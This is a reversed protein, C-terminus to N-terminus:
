SKLEQLPQGFYINQIASMVNATSWGFIIIGTAAELSALIRWEEGLTIDGYGLTTYTVISFYLSEEFTEIAGAMTFYGAWIMAEVIAAVIMMVVIADLFILKQFKKHSPQTKAKHIIAISGKTAMLHVLSTIFIM